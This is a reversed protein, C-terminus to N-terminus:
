GVSCFAWSIAAPWCPWLRRCEWRATMKIAATMRYGHSNLCSVLGPQHAASNGGAYVPRIASAFTWFPDPAPVSRKAKIEAILRTNEPQSFQDLLIEQQATAQRMSELAALTDIQKKRLMLLEVETLGQYDSASELKSTTRLLVTVLIALFLVGGFTNCITDLLLELSSTRTRRRRNM